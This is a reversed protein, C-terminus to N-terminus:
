RSNRGWLLKNCVHVITVCARADLSQEIEDKEVNIQDKNKWVMDDNM